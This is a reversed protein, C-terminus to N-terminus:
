LKASTEAAVRVGEGADGAKLAGLVELLAARDLAIMHRIWKM